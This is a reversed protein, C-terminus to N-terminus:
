YFKISDNKRLIMRIYRERLQPNINAKIRGKKFFTKRYKPELAYIDPYLFECLTEEIKRLYSKADQETWSTLSVPM